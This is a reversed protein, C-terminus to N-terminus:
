AELESDYAEGTWGDAAQVKYLKETEDDDQQENEEVTCPRLVTVRQGAHETHDPLSTFASPYNFTYTKGIEIPM